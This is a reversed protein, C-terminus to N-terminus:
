AFFEHHGIAAVVKMGADLWKSKTPMSYLPNLYQVAHVSELIKNKPTKGGLMGVAIAYCGMLNFDTAMCEDWNEAIHLLKGYNHDWENYCSFQYKKLCVEKVTKGDWDRHDVREMIVTGVAIQGEVPEGRAEGYITLGMVQKDDLQLFAPNIM